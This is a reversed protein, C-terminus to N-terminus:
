FKYVDYKPSSITLCSKIHEIDRWPISWRDNGDVVFLYDFDGSQYATRKHTRGRRLSVERGPNKRTEKSAYATKVQVTCWKGNYLIVYDYPRSQDYAWAVEWGKEACTKLFIAEGYLGKNAKHM